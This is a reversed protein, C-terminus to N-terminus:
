GFFTGSGPAVRQDSSQRGREGVAFFTAGQGGAPGTAHPRGVVCRRCCDRVEGLLKL